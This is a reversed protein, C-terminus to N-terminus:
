NHFLRGLLPSKLFPPFGWKIDLDMFGGPPSDFSIKPFGSSPTGELLGLLIADLIKPGVSSGLFMGLLVFGGPPLPLPIKSSDVGTCVRCRTFGGPPFVLSMNPDGTM